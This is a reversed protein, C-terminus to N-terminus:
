VVKIILEIAGDGYRRHSAPIPNIQPYRSILVLLESELVGQGVGHILVLKPVRKSIAQEIVNRAKNLQIDLIQHPKLYKHRQNIKEIHLDVELIRGSRDQIFSSSSVSFAKNKSKKVDKQDLASKDKFLEESDLDNTLKILQDKKFSYEFGDKTLVLYSQTLEKYSVVVGEIVDDISQVKDGISIKKYVKM